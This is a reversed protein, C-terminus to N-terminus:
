AVYILFEFLLISEYDLKSEIMSACLLSIVLSYFFKVKEFWWSLTIYIHRQIIFIFM